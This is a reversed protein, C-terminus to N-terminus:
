KRRNQILDYVKRDIVPDVPIVDGDKTQMFNRVLMDFHFQNVDYNAFWEVVEILISDPFQEYYHNLLYHNWDRKGSNMLQMKISEFQDIEQKVLKRNAPSLPFLKTMKFVMIPIDSMGRIRSIGRVEFEDIYESINLAIRIWEEKMTDRTFVLVNDADYEYVLSTSGRGIMTYKDRYKKPIEDVRIASGIVNRAKLDEDTQQTFESARM